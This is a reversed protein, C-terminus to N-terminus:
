PRHVVASTADVVPDFTETVAAPATISVRKPVTVTFKQTTTDTLPATYAVQAGVLLAGVGFVSWLIKKMKWSERERQTSRGSHTPCGHRHSPSCEGKRIPM